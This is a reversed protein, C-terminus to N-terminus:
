QHALPLKACIRTGGEPLLQALLAGGLEEARERMSALGVGAQYGEPLGVGNDTVEVALGGNLTLRVDCRSAAAHRVTNTVAETAIRYAAVEVAAPLEGLDDPANVSITPASGGGAATFARLGHRIADVLGRQDLAPPRRDDLLRRVESVCAQLQQELQGFVEDVQGGDAALRARAAGVQMTMGALAPGLGDHLDRRLRHREEERARALDQLLGREATTFPQSPARPAVLLRGVVQGQYTM